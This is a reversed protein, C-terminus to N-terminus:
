QPEPMSSIEFDIQDTPHLPSPEIRYGKIPEDRFTQVIANSVQLNNQRMFKQIQRAFSWSEEDHIPVLIHILKNQPLNLIKQRLAQNDSSNIDRKPPAYINNYTNNCNPSFNGGVNGTASCDGTTVSQAVATSSISPLISIIVLAALGRFQM